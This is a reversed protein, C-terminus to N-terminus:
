SSIRDARQDQRRADDDKRDAVDQTVNQGFDVAKAPRPSRDPQAKQTVQHRNDGDPDGPQQRRWGEPAVLFRVIRDQAEGRAQQHGAKDGIQDAFEGVARNQGLHFDPSLTPVKPHAGNTRRDHALPQVRQDENQDGKAAQHRWCYNHGRHDALPKELRGVFDKGRRQGIIHHVPELGNFADIDVINVGVHVWKGKFLSSTAMFRLATTRKDPPM